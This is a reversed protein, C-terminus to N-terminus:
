GPQLVRRRLLDFHARGYGRRKICKLRNNSGEVPGNSWSLSLGAEVAAQDQQLSIAFGRMEAVESSQADTLWQRLAESQDCRPHQRIMVLFRQALTNAKAFPECTEALRTLITQQRATREAERRLCWMTVQRQSVKERPQQQEPTPQQRLTNLYDRVMTYSGSYGQQRIEAYLTAGIHCGEQWRKHLHGKFADIQCPRAAREKREPFTASSALKRVTKRALNLHHAIASINWGQAFLTRVEDYRQVRSQRRQQKEQQLRAQQRSLSSSSSPPVTEPEEPTEQAPPTSPPQTAQKLAARHAELLHELAQGLNKVLHWRDTVQKAHPAGQRIGAAYAEARDRSVIEVGPHARLWAALTEQTRDPLLDVVQHQELDYLITGYHHGKRFAWDDVGLVRPTSRLPLPAAKELRLLTTASTPMALHNALRVGPRSGVAQGVRTQAQRLRETRRASRVAFDLLPEAFTRRHCLPNGCFFRRVWVRLCLTEAGSPLDALTRLYRSHVRRSVSRCYPCCASRARTTLLWQQGSVGNLQQVLHLGPPLPFAVHM